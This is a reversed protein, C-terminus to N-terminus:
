NTEQSIFFWLYILLKDHIEHFFLLFFSLGGDIKYMQESVINIFVIM